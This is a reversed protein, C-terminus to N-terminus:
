VDVILPIEYTRNVNYVVNVQRTKDECIIAPYVVRIADREVFRRVKDLCACDFGLNDTFELVAVGADAIADPLCVLSNANAQVIRVTRNAFLREPLTIIKNGNFRFVDVADHGRFADPDIELLRNASLYLELSKTKAMNRFADAQLRSIENYVVDLKHVGTNRFWNSDIEKLNNHSLNVAELEAVDDFADGDLTALRNESLDIEKVRVGEFVGRKIAGIPNSSIKLLSLISRVRFCGPELESVGSNLVSLVSLERTIRILNSSITPITNNAVTLAFSDDELTIVDVSTLNVPDRGFARVVTLNFITAASTSVCDKGLSFMALLLIANM